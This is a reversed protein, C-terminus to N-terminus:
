SYTNFFSFFAPSKGPIIYDAQGSPGGAKVIYEHQIDFFCAAGRLGAFSHQFDGLNEM